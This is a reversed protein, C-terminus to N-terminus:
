CGCLLPLISLSVGTGTTMKRELDKISVNVRKHYIQHLSVLLKYFTSLQLCMMWIVSLFDYIGVFVGIWTKKMSAHAMPNKKDTLYELIFYFPLFLTLLAGGLGLVVLFATLYCSEKILFVTMVVTRRTYGNVHVNVAKQYKIELPDTSFSNAGEYQWGCQSYTPGLPQRSSPHEFFCGYRTSLAIPHQDPFTMKCKFKDKETEKCMDVEGKKNNPPSCLRGGRPGGSCRHTPTNEKMYFTPLIWNYSTRM